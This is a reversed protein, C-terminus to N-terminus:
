DPKKIFPSIANIPKKYKSGSLGSLGCLFINQSTKSGPLQITRHISFFNRTM